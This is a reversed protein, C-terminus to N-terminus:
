SVPVTRLRVPLGHRKTDALVATLAVGQIGVDATAGVTAQVADLLAIAANGSTVDAMPGGSDGEYAPGDCYVQTADIESLVGERSQETTATGDFPVGHGSFQCIDGIRASSAGGLRQPINPHGAMSPNVYKLDNRAIKILAFDYSTSKYAVTGILLGHAFSVPFPGDTLYVPQGTGTVCHGATGLFQNGRLAGTGAFVWGATCGTSGATIRAGPQIVPATSAARAHLAPSLIAAACGAAMITRAARAPLVANM